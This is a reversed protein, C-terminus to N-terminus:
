DALHYVKETIILPKDAPGKISERVWLRAKWGGSGDPEALPHHESVPQWRWHGRSYWRHSWEVAVEGVGREQMVRRRLRIISVRDPIGMRRARRAFARPIESESVDTITQGLMLWFALMIRRSNTFDSPMIGEGLLEDRKYTTLEIVEPGVQTNDVMVEWGIIGWRGMTARYIDYTGRKRVDRLLDLAIDDPTHDQDNLMMMLIGHRIEGSKVDYTRTPHWLVANVKLDVGRVDHIIWPNEFYAFGSTTPLVDRRFVDTADMGAAAWTILETMDPDVYYASGVRLAVRHGELLSPVQEEARRHAVESTMGAGMLTTSHDIVFHKRVYDMMDPMDFRAVLDAQFDLVQAPHM